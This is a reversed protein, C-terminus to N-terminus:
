WKMLSTFTPGLCLFELGYSEQKKVKGCPKVEMLSIHGKNGRYRNTLTAGASLFSVLNNLSTHNRSKNTTSNNTGKTNEWADVVSQAGSCPQLKWRDPSTPNLISHPELLFNLCLHLGNVGWLLQLYMWLCIVLDPAMRRRSVYIGWTLPWLSTLLITIHWPRCLISLWAKTGLNENGEM